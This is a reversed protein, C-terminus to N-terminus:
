ARLRRAVTRSSMGLARAASAMSPLSRHDRAELLQELRANITASRQLLTLQREAHSRLM